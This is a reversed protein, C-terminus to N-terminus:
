CFEYYLILVDSASEWLPINGKYETYVARPQLESQLTVKLEYYRWEDYDQESAIPCRRSLLAIPADPAYSCIPFLEPTM